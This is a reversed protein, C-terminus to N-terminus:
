DIRDSKSGDKITQLNNVSDLAFRSSYTSSAQVAQTGAELSYHRNDSRREQGVIDPRCLLVGCARRNYASSRRKPSDLKIHINHLIYKEVNM